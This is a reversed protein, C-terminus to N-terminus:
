EKEKLKEAIRLIDSMSVYKQGSIIKCHLGCAMLFDDIAKNRADDTVASKCDRDKM